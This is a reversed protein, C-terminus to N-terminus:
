PLWHSPALLPTLSSSKDGVTTTTLHGLSHIPWTLSPSSVKSAYQELAVVTDATFGEDDETALDELGVETQVALIASDAPVAVPHHIYATSGDELQVAELASPDYGEAPFMRNTRLGCLLLVYPPCGLTLTVFPVYALSAKLMEQDGGQHTVRALGEEPASEGM